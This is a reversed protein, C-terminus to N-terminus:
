CVARLLSVAYWLEGFLVRIETAREAAAELPEDFPVADSHLELVWRTDQSQRGLGVSLLTAQLGDLAHHCCLLAVRGHETYAHDPM